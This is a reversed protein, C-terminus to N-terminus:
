LDVREPLHPEDGGIPCRTPSTITSGGAEDNSARGLDTRGELDQGSPFTPQLRFHRQLQRDL